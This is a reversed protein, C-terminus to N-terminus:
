LYKKLNSVLVSQTSDVEKPQHIGESIVTIFSTITRYDLITFLRHNM